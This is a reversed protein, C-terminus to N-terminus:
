VSREGVRVGSFGRTKVGDIWKRRRPFRGSLAKAFGDRGYQRDPAVGNKEAWRQYAYYLEATATWSGSEAVLYGSEFVSEM